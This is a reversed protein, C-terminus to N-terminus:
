WRRGRPYGPATGSDGPGSLSSCRTRPGPPPLSRSVPPAPGTGTRRTPRPRQPPEPPRPSLRPAAGQPSSPPTSSPCPNSPSWLYSPQPPRPTQPATPRRPLVLPRVHCRRACAQAFLFPTSSTEPPTMPHPSVWVRPFPLSLGAPPWQLPRVACCSLLTRTPKAQPPHHATLLPPLPDQFSQLLDSDRHCYIVSPTSRGQHLEERGDM